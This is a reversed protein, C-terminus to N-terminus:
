NGDVHGVTPTPDHPRAGFVIGVTVGAVVLAGGGVVAWFWPKKVISPKEPAQTVLANNTATSSQTAAETPPESAVTTPPNNKAKEQAAIAEKLKAIQSHVDDVNPQNPYLQVYNKYLILAKENNGALRYSQAANYLLAPDPKLTYAQQYEDAAKAFDGVAFHATAREYYGKAESANDAGASSAALLLASVILSRMM